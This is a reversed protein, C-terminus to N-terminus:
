EVEQNYKNRRDKRNEKREARNAKREAKLTKLEARQDATLVLAIDHQMQARLTVGAQQRQSREAHEAQKQAVFNPSAADLEQKNDRTSRHAERLAQMQPKYSDRINKIQTKQEDSVNIKELMKEHMMGRQQQKGEAGGRHKDAHVVTATGILLATIAALTILLKKM